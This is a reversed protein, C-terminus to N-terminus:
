FLCSSNAPYIIDISHVSSDLIWRDQITGDEFKIFIKNTKHQFMHGLCVEGSQFVVHVRISPIHITPISCTAMNLSTESFSVLGYM